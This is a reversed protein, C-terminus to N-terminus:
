LYQIIKMLADEPMTPLLEIELEQFILEQACATITVSDISMEAVVQDDRELRRIIRFQELTFLAQLTEPGVIREVRERVQSEPWQGLPRATSMTVQWESRRHIASDVYNLSKLTIEIGDHMERQRCSFGARLIRRKRTDLYTDWVQTTQPRSLAYGALKSSTQLQWILQPDALKFKAEIETFDATSLLEIAERRVLLPVYKRIAGDDYKAALRTVTKEVLPRPVTESLDQWVRDIVSDLDFAPVDSETSGQILHSSHDKSTAHYGTNM